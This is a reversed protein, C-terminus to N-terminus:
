VGFKIDIHDDMCYVAPLGQVVPLLRPLLAHACVDLHVPKLLSNPPRTRVWDKAALKAGDWLSLGMAEEDNGGASLVLRYQAMETEEPKLWPTNHAQATLDQGAYAKCTM